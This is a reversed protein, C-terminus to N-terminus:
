KNCLGKSSKVFLAVKDDLIIAIEALGVALAKEHDNKPTQNCHKQIRVYQANLTDITTEIMVM